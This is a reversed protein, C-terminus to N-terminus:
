KRFKNSKFMSEFYLKLRQWLQYDGKKFINKFFSYVVWILKDKFKVKKLGLYDLYDLAELAEKSSLSDNYVYRGNVESRKKEEIFYDEGLLNKQKCIEYLKTSPYPTAIFTQFYDLKKINKHIFSITQNLDEKTEGPTGVIFTGLVRMGTKKTVDIARQNDSVTVLNNKLLGLVRESGSEFGYELQICGAQKILKLLELDDWHILDTRAQVSWNIKKSLRKKILLNCFEGIKSKNIFFMDNCFYIRKVKYRKVLEEIERIIYESSFERVKHFVIGTCCFICKYPCGRSSMITTVRSQVIGRIGFSMGLYHKMDFLSRDPFPISDLDQIQERKRTYVIKGQDRFAIGDIGLLDDVFLKGKDFYKEVIELFTVEGEGLVAIDFSGQLLTNKTDANVHVGGIIQLIDKKLNRICQSLEIAKLAQPSLSTFGVIHPDFTLVEKLIDKAVNGDIIMIEYKQSSYKQLYASIYGLGLVPYPGQLRPNILCIRHKMSVPIQNRKFVKINRSPYTFQNVGKSYDLFLGHWM